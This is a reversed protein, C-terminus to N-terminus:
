SGGLHSNVYPRTGAQSVLRTGNRGYKALVEARRQRAAEIAAPSNANPMPMVNDAAYPHSQGGLPGGDLNTLVTGGGTSTTTKKTHFLNAM